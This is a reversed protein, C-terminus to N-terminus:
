PSPSSPPSPASRNPPRRRAAPPASSPTSRTSRCPRSPPSPRRSCAAWRASRSRAASRASSCRAPRRSAASAGATLVALGIWVLPRFGVKPLLRGSIASAVPWAISMPAISAGAATPSGGLVGQVFLPVFTLIGMMTAGIFAGTLSAVAMFRQRFLGLPIVPEPARAEVALFAALAVAAAPFAILAAKGGHSGALLGLSAATLLAAGAFDLRHPSRVVNEHFFALLLAISALGFPINIYFIWRWSIYHVITGGLFPGIIGAFGWVAGFVGQMRSREHFTFIDGVVTLAIPGVAAAGLGQLARFGILGPMSRAQGSAASGLLFVVLGFMLVPRRGYLDALKGCLPVPVTAALMYATFVWSYLEIGGLDGIVTPMATSVVTMEMASMFMGLLLALVTWGRHTKRPM